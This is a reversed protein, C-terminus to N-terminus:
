RLWTWAPSSYHSYHVSAEELVLAEDTACEWDGQWRCTAVASIAEAVEGAEAWPEESVCSPDPIPVQRMLERVVTQSDRLLVSGHQLLATGTRLQASGVVKREGMMIEGGVPSAFCAGSDLPPTRHRDALSVTAGLLHLSDALMQHIELYAANLTGFHSYPAAVSYTVEQAHW